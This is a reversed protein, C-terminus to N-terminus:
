KYQHASQELMPGWVENDEGKKKREGEKRRREQEEKVVKRPGESEWLCLRAQATGHTLLGSLAESM